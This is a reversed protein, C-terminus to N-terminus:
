PLWLLPVAGERQATKTKLDELVEWLQNDDLDKADMTLEPQPLSAQAESPGEDLSPMRLRPAHLVEGCNITM